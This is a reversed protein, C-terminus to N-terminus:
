GKPLSAPTYSNKAEWNGLLIPALGIVANELVELPGSEFQIHLSGPRNHIRTCQPDLIRAVLYVWLRRRYRITRRAEVKRLCAVRQLPCEFRKPFGAAIYRNETERNALLNDLLKAVTTQM